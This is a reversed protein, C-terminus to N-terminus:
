TRLRNVRTLPLLIRRLQVEAKRLEGVDEGRQCIVFAGVTFVLRVVVLM